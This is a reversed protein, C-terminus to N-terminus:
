APLHKAMSMLEDTSHPPRPQEPVTWLPVLPLLRALGEIGVQEDHHRQAEQKLADRLLARWGYLSPDPIGELSSPLNEIVDASPLGPRVRNVIVSGLTSAHAELSALFPGLSSPHIRDGRLVLHTLCHESKLVQSVHESRARFGPGFDAMLSFFARVESMVRAGALHAVLGLGRDMARQTLTQDGGALARIMRPEFVRAVRTPAELFESLHRSPPTDVVIMDWSPDRMLDHLKEIAMYEQSGGLRQSAAQYYRNALLTEAQQTSPAHRRILADWTTGRDLMMAHLSGPVDPLSVPTPSNGLAEGGLADALRRAPDITLVVVRLGAQAHAIALAAAVTTKGVGGEGCCINVLPM